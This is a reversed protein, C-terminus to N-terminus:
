NEEKVYDFKINGIIGKVEYKVDGIVFNDGAKINILKKAVETQLGIKEFKSNDLDKINKDSIYFYHSEIVHNEIIEVNYLNVYFTDTKITSKQSEINNIKYLGGCFSSGKCNGGYFECDGRHYFKCKIHNKGIDDDIKRQHLNVYTM